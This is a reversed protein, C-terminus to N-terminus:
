EFYINPIVTSTQVTEDHVIKYSKSIYPRIAALENGVIETDTSLLIVQHSTNPFYYEAIHARHETDLRGLPTDIVIPLSRNAIQSLASVLSIALLEKEGASLKTKDILRNEADYLDISFQRDPNVAIRKILDQKRALKQWMALTYEELRVARQRRFEHSFDDIVECLKRCYDIQKQKAATVKAKEELRSRQINLAQIDAKAKDIQAKLDLSEKEKLRIQEEFRGKEQYLREAEPDITAQKEAKQIKELTPEIEQLRKLSGTLQHIIEFSNEVRQRIHQIDNKSLDHILRLEELNQPKDALTEQLVRRLKDIYFEKQKQTLMPVSELGEYFLRTTIQSIKPELAKQTTIQRELEQERDLQDILQEGLRATIVFPLDDKVAEFIRQELVSKEGVLDDRQNRYDELTEAKIRTIRRTEADIADIRDQLNYIEEELINIKENAIGINHEHQAIQAEVGKVEVLVDANKNYEAVLQGRLTKLDDYLVRYDSIGLVQEMSRAFETDEDRVFDQIKEGDFFFFQSVDYPILEEIFDDYDERSTFDSIFSPQGQDGTITFIEEIGNRGRIVTWHRKIRLSQPVGRVEVESLELEVYMSARIKAQADNNIISKIYSEYNERKAGKSPILAKNRMGYLCLLIAEFITTKGAGNLGGFLVVRKEPTLGASLGEIYVTDKFCKYNHITIADIRM